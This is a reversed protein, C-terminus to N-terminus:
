RRLAEAVAAIAGLVAFIYGWLEKRTVFRSAQDTLTARFENVSDFRKETASEAKTVAEKSSALASAATTEVNHIAHSLDRHQSELLALLYEKLTETTWATM